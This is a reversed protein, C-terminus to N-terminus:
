RLSIPVHLTGRCEEGPDVKSEMAKDCADPAAGFGLEPYGLCRLQDAIVEHGYNTPHIWDLVTVLGAAIPDRVGGTTAEGNFVRFIRACKSHVGIANEQCIERWVFANLDQIFPLMTELNGEERDEAVFAYYYDMTRLVRTRGSAPPPLMELMTEVRILNGKLHDVAVQLCETPKEPPGCEGDRYVQRAIRLDNGGIDWTIVDASRLEEQVDPQALIKLFEDSSVRDQGENSHAVLLWRRHSNLDEQMFDRYRSAYPNIWFYVEVGSALSDGLAVYHMAPLSSPLALGASHATLTGPLIMLLYLLAFAVRTAYKRSM